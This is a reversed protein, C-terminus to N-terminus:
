EHMQQHLDTIVCTECADGSLPRMYGLDANVKVVCNGRLEMGDEIVLVLSARKLLAEHM